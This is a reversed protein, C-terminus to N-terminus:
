LFYLHDEEIEVRKTLQLLLFRLPWKDDALVNKNHARTIFM